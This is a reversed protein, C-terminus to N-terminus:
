NLFFAKTDVNMVKSAEDISGYTTTIDISFDHIAVKLRKNENFKIFNVSGTKRILELHEKQSNELNLNWCLKM